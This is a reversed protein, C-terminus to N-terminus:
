FGKTLRVYGLRGVLDAQSSDFGIAFGVDAFPPLEDFLNKVGAQLSLGDWLPSPGFWEDMAFSAQMDVLTRSPLKRGTVGAAGADMYAPLWDLTAALGVGNRK